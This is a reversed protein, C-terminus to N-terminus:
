QLMNEANKLIEMWGMYDEHCDDHQLNSIRMLHFQNEPQQSRWIDDPSLFCIHECEVFPVCNNQSKSVENNSTGRLFKVSGDYEYKNIADAINCPSCDVIVILEFELKKCLVSGIAASLYECSNRAPIIVSVAIRNTKIGM